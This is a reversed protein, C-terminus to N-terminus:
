NEDENGGKMTLDDETINHFEVFAKKWDFIFENKDGKVLKVAEAKLEKICVLRGYYGTFDNLTKLKM